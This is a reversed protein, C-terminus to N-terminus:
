SYMIYKQKIKNTHINLLVKFLTNFFYANSSALLVFALFTSFGGNFVPPGITSLTRLARESILLSM